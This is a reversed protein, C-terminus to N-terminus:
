HPWCAEALLAGGEWAGGEWGQGVWGPGASRMGAEPDQQRRLRRGAWRLLTMAKLATSCLWSAAFPSFSFTSVSSEMFGQTRLTSYATRPGMTCRASSSSCSSRWTNDQGGPRALPGWVTGGTGWGGVGPAQCSPGLSTGWGGRGRPRTLPGQDTRRGGGGVLGTPTILEGRVTSGEERWPTFFGKVSTMRALMPSACAMPCIGIVKGRWTLSLVARCGGGMLGHVRAGASVGGLDQGEADVGIEQVARVEGVVGLSPRLADQLRTPAVAQTLALVRGLGPSPHHAPAPPLSDRSLPPGAAPLPRAKERPCRPSRM